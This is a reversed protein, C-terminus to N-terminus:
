DGEVTWGESGEFRGLIMTADRVRLRSKVEDGEVLVVDFSGEWVTWGEERDRRASVSAGNLDDVRVSTYEGVVVSVRPGALIVTNGQGSLDEVVVGHSPTSIRLELGEATPAGDHVFGFLALASAFLIARM